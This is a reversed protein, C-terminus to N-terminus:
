QRIQSWYEEAVDEDIQIPVREAWHNDGGRKKCGSVWYEEKTEVDYFNGRIKQSGARQLIKNKYYVRNYTRSFSVRGIRAEGTEKNEIYMIRAKM